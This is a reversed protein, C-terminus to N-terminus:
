TMLLGSMPFMKYDLFALIFDCFNGGGGGKPFISFFFLYIYNYVDVLFGCMVTIYINPLSWYGHKEPLSSLHTLTSM